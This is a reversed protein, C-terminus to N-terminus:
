LRGTERLWAVTRRMAEDFPTIRYGLEREARASSYAWEHRYIRVVEDTLEPDSGFWDARWRQWRGIASALAFPIKRSPEPVGSAERFFAFLENATRNEGGLIYASGAEARELASLAGEVVDEVYAFCQRLDGSGLMGPLKGSAQQLLLNVVHNGHTLEGPGFIVGPYLRVIPFGESALHRAMQDAVWKTREYDNHLEMTARPTTEDFVAGDTPGLALFSSVYVLRADAARAAESVHTFGQVNVRDFRRRDAAWMKVLAAAHLVADCGRAADRVAEADTVDGVIAEANEPKQHWRRAERVLGRVEHGAEAVRRALRGGLFGTVGTMFVKM